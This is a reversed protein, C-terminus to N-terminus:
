TGHVAEQWAYINKQITRHDLVYQKAQAALMPVLDRNAVVDHIVDVWDAETKPCWAWGMDKWPSYPEADQVIPMVGAMAYELAKVDSKGVSWPNVTLPAIGVDINGLNKRGEFLDDDWPAKAGSWGAPAFGIMSVEVGPQRAAWKLAKKVLPFDRTHSPSGYYGIRLTESESRPVDWDTPDVSNPCVYIPIDVGAKSLFADYENALNDTSVILGDMQPVIKKHMEISYFTGNAQAQRVKISESVSM